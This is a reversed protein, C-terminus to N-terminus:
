QSEEPHFIFGSSHDESAGTVSKLCNIQNDIRLLGLFSFILAEKYNILENSPLRIKIGGYSEIRQMLFLNFVGGGTVLVSKNKYIIRGIQMAIHEVFTRLITSITAEHHDILPFIHEQVWEFGLSKPAKKEYFELANLETLLAQNIKGQSAIKGSEDFDFGLKGAYHNLVINVPSIDFAIREGNKRYSVNSFGGLNVCFDYDSFLIEDGIPVLPAGQGGLRVDQSRFDCVVKLNTKQAIVAGNGIQLTIGKEPQHLITHGHSAIFHITTIKYKDIFFLIKEALFAGYKKDLDRLEDSSFAPAKQLINKWKEPYSLTESHIIEFFSDRPTKFKVYVLDIGDLSTGSMTAISFVNNKNM